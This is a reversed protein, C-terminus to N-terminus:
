EYHTYSLMFIWSLVHTVKGLVLCCVSVCDLFQFILRFKLLVLARALKWKQYNPRRCQSGHSTSNWLYAVMKPTQCGEGSETINQPICILSTMWLHYHFCDLSYKANDLWMTKMITRSIRFWCLLQCNCIFDAVLPLIFLFLIKITSRFM